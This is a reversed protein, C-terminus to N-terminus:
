IPSPNEHTGREPSPARDQAVPSEMPYDVQFRETRINGLKQRVRLHEPHTAYGELAQQSEFESILVADCAYDVASVDIGVELHHMGPILGRLGEFSDKVLKGAEMREAATEGRLRWMVVHRIM